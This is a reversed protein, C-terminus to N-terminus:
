RGVPEPYKAKLLNEREALAVQYEKTGETLTLLKARNADLKEDLASGSPTGEISGDIIGDEAFQEGIQAFLKFLEPQNTAGSSTLWAKLEPSGFRDVTRLALQARRNFTMEGWEDALKDLSALNAENAAATRSKEETLAWEALAQVQDQTFGAKHFFPAAAELRKTDVTKGTADPVTLTYDSALKPVGIAARYAAVEEPKADKGPVKVMGDLKAGVLKKTELYAQAVGGVDKFQHLAKEGKLGDPLSEYWPTASSSVAPAPTTTAATPTTTEPTTLTTTDEAAM